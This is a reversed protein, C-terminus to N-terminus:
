LSGKLSATVLQEHVAYTDVNGGQALHELWAGDAAFRLTELFPTGDTEHHQQLRDRVWCFWLPRLSPEMTMAIFLSVGATTSGFVKGTLTSKIYARTFSGRPEPDDAIYADIEIDLREIADTFLGEILAQKSPFHHFLGGKTVGADDAIAKVTVGSLGDREALYIASELLRRRVAAPDKKRSLTGM